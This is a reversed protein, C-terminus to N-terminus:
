FFKYFMEPVMSIENIFIYDLKSNKINDATRSIIYRHITKGNIIRCAKNTPALAEYTLGRKDMEAQLQKIMTSKGTGARGDIHVSRKKDLVETVFSSVDNSGEDLSIEWALDSHEYQM